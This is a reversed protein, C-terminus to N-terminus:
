AGRQYDHHLGGLVPVAIVRNPPDPIRQRIGQPPRAQNFYVAYAQLLLFIQKEHFQCMIAGAQYALLDEITHDRPSNRPGNRGKRM